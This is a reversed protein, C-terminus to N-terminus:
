SFETSHLEDHDEEEHDHGDHDHEDESQFTSLRPLSTLPSCLHELICFTNINSIENALACLCFCERKVKM